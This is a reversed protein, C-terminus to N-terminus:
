KRRRQLNEGCKEGKVKLAYISKERFMELGQVKSSSREAFCELKEVWTLFLNVSLHFAIFESTQQKNACSQQHNRTFMKLILQRTPQTAM